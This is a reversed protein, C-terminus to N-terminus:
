NDGKKRKQLENHRKMADQLLQKERSFPVFEHTPEPEVKPKKYTNILSTMFKGLIYTNCWLWLGALYGLFIEVFNVSALIIFYMMFIIKFSFSLVIIWNMILDTRRTM